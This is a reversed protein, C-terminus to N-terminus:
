YQAVVCDIIGLDSLKKQQEGTLVELAKEYRSNDNKEPDSFISSYKEKSRQIPDCEVAERIEDESAENEHAIMWTSDKRNQRVYDFAFDPTLGYVIIKKPERGAYNAWTLVIGIHLGNNSPIFEPTPTPDGIGNVFGSVSAMYGGDEVNGIPAVLRDQL